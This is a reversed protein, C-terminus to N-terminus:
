EHSRGHVRDSVWDSSDAFFFLFDCLFFLLKFQETCWICSWFIVTWPHKLNLTSSFPVKSFKIMDIPERSERNKSKSKLSDRLVFDTVCLMSFMEQLVFFSKVKIFTRLYRYCFTNLCTSTICILKLWRKLIQCENNHCICVSLVSCLHINTAHAWLVAM